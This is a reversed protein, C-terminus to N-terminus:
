NPGVDEANQISAMMYESDSPYRIENIKGKSKDLPFPPEGPAVWHVVVALSDSKGSTRGSSFAEAYNGGIRLVSSRSPGMSIHLVRVSCDRSGRLVEFGFLCLLLFYTGLSSVLRPICVWAFLTYHMTCLIYHMTFILYHM